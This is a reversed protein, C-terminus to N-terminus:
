IQKPLINDVDLRRDRGLVLNRKGRDQNSQVLPGDLGRRRVHTILAGAESSTTKHQSKNFCFFCSTRVARLTRTLGILLSGSAKLTNFALLSEAPDLMQSTM